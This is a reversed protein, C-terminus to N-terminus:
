REGDLMHLYAEVAAKQAGTAGTNAVIAAIDSRLAATGAVTSGTQDAVAQAHAQAIGGPHQGLLAAQGAPLAGNAEARQAAALAAERTIGANGNQM